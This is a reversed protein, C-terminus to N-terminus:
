KARFAELLMYRIYGYKTFDKKAMVKYKVGDYIIYNNTSIPTDPLCHLMLWDWSWTGEPLIRLEEDKPPQVVGKTKIKKPETEIWDAGDKVREIYDFTINLFWGQITSSMNPLSNNINNLTINRASQIM